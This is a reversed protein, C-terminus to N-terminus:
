AHNVALHARNPNEVSIKMALKHLDKRLASRRRAQYLLQGLNMSEVASRFDNSIPIPSLGSLSREAEKLTVSSRRKKYRNVVPVIREVPLGRDRLALNLNRAVHIDKVTLQFVILTFLSAQALSAAVEMPVRPADVVTYRYADKCAELAADLNNYALPAPLAFNTTAPSLLVHIGQPHAVTTTGILERDISSTKALVDAIGYQGRLGLYAAVAGYSTDMDIVLSPAKSHRKLEDALNVTLLTAGCGGSASLVTVVTGGEGKGPGTTLLRELVKPLESAISGKVLFHRAGVRMAELVLDNRLDRSLVVFRTRPYTSIISDLDKLIREPEPDIDVVVASAPGEKLRSLLEKLGPYIAAPSLQECLALASQVARETAAENTVLFLGVQSSMM